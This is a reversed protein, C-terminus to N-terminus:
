YVANNYRVSVPSLIRGNKQKDHMEKFLIEWIQM